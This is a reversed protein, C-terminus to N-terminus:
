HNPTQGPSQAPTAPATQPTKDLLAQVAYKQQFNLQSNTALDRLEAEATQRLRGADACHGLRTGRIIPKSEYETRESAQDKRM